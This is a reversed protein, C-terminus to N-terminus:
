SFNEEKKAKRSRRKRVMEALRSDSSSLCEKKTIIGAKYQEVFIQRCMCEIAYDRSNVLDQGSIEVYDKYKRGSLTGRILSKFLEDYSIRMIEHLLINRRRDFYTGELIRHQIMYKLKVEQFIVCEEHEHFGDDSCDDPCSCKCTWSQSMINRCVQEPNEVSFSKYKVYYLINPNVLFDDVTCTPTHLGSPDLKKM